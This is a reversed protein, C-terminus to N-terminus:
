ATGHAKELWERCQQQLGASPTAAGPDHLIRGAEEALRVLGFVESNKVRQYAARWDRLLALVEDKPLAIGGPRRNGLQAMYECIEEADGLLLCLDNIPTTSQGMTTEQPM